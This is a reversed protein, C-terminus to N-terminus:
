QASLTGTITCSATASVSSTFSAIIVPTKGPGVRFGVPINFDIINNSGNSHALSPLFVGRTGTATSVTLVMASYNTNTPIKIQCATYNITLLQNAPTSSFSVACFTATSCSITVYEDYYNGSITPAASAPSTLVVSFALINAAHFFRYM